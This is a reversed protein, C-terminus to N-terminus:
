RVVEYVRVKWVLLCLSSVCVGLLSAFASWAPVLDRPVIGLFLWNFVSDVMVGLNFLWGWNTHLIANTAGGFAAGAFFVGFLLAGAMPKLKVWASLALALLSITVIWLWSGALIAALIRLHDGTWEFGELGAQFFFLLSGPVWTIASLLILLVSLKGLIYDKRTFPRSLYLPLANNNLDPSILGPGVLVSIIFAATSQFGMVTLFFRANIPLLALLPIRFARLAEVNHHLYILLAAVLPILFTAFFLTTFLRSEFVQPFAYRPLILFRTNQPTLLGTYRTFTQKYVAM